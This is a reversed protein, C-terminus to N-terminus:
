PAINLAALPDPPASYATGGALDPASGWRFDFDICKLMFIQCRTAGIKCKGQSRRFFYKGQGKGSWEFEGVKELKGQSTPVAHTLKVNRDATLMHYTMGSLLIEVYDCAGTSFVLYSGLIQPLAWCNLPNVNREASTAVDRTRFATVNASVARATNITHPDVHPM